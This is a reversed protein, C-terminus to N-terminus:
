KKRKQWWLAEFKIFTIDNENRVFNMPEYIHHKARFMNVAHRCGEFSGFDDIYVFGGPVVKHYLNTLSDWTSVFLDGDARLFSIADIKAHPLTDNFYGKTVVIVNEDWVQADKLNKEFKQQAYAMEHLQSPRGWVGDKETKPPFGDFSDFAWYRKKCNDYDLLLRMIIWSSHGTHVGTEVIDGSPLVLSAKTLFGTVKDRPYWAGGGHPVPNTNALHDFFAENDFVMSKKLCSNSQFDVNSTRWEELLTTQIEDYSLVVTWCLVLGIFIFLRGLSEM